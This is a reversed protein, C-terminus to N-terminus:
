GILMDEESVGADLAAVFWAPRRGRGSWQIAKNEPHRYKPAAPRRRGRKAPKNGMLEAISAFGLEKAKAELEAIAEQKKRDEFDTIANAVDKQLQNLEKLSLESLNLKM